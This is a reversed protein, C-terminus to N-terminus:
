QSPIRDSATRRGGAAGQRGPPAPVAEPSVQIREWAPYEYLLRGSIVWVVIKKGALGNERRALAERTGNAGGATVALLDIPQGMASALHDVLGARHADHYVVSSSDGLLLIPSTRAVTEVGAGSAGFVKPRQSYLALPVCPPRPAKLKGWLDGCDDRTSREVTLALGPGRPAGSHVLRTAIERAAVQASWPSWHTDQAAYLPEPSRRREARFTPGLDLVEIGRRELEALWLRQEHGLDLAVPDADALLYDAYIEFKPPIRVVLLPLGRRRLQGAFDGVALLADTREADLPTDPPKGSSENPVPWPGLGAAGQIESRLFLWGDRGAFVGKTAKPALLERVQQRFREVAAASDASVAAAAGSAGALLAGLGLGALLGRGGRLARRIFRKRVTALATGAAEGPSIAASGLSSSGVAAGVATGAAGPAAGSARLRRPSPLAAKPRGPM